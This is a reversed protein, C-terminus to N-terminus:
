KGKNAYTVELLVDRLLDRIETLLEVSPNTTEYAKREQEFYSERMTNSFCKPCLGSSAYDKTYYDNLIFKEKCEFCGVVQENFGMKRLMELDDKTSDILLDKIKGM